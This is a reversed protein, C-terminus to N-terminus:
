AAMTEGVQFRIFRRIVIEDGLQHRLADVDDLVLVFPRKRNRLMRGFRPLAVEHIAGSDEALLALIGPDVPELRQLALM